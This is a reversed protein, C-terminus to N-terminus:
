LLGDVSDLRELLSVIESPLPLMISNRSAGARGLTAERAEEYIFKKDAQSANVDAQGHEATQSSKSQPLMIGDRSAGARGLAVERAEEYISKKDAHSANV